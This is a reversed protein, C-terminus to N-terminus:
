AGVSETQDLVININFSIAEEIETLEDLGINACVVIYFTGTGPTAGDDTASQLTVDTDLAVNNALANMATGWTEGYYITLETNNVVDATIHAYM